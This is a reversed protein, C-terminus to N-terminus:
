KNLGKKKGKGHGLGPHPTTTPSVEPDASASSSPEVSEEPENSSDAPTSDTISGDVPNDVFRISEDTGCGALVLTLILYKTNM